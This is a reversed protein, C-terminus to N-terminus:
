YVPQRELLRFVIRKWLEELDSDVYNKDGYQIIIGALERVSIRPPIALKRNDNLFPGDPSDKFRFAEM